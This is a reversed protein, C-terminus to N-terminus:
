DSISQIGILIVPTQGEGGLRKTCAAMSPQEYSFSIYTRTKARIPARRTPIVREERGDRDADRDTNADHDHVYEVGPM